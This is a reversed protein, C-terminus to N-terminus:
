LLYAVLAFVPVLLVNCFYFFKRKSTMGINRESISILIKWVNEKIETVSKERREKM